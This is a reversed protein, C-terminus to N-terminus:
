NKTKRTKYENHCIIAVSGLMETEALYTNTDALFM